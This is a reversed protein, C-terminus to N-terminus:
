DALQTNPQASLPPLLFESQLDSILSAFTNDETGDCGDCGDGSGFLTSM